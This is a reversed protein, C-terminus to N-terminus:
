GCLYTQVYTADGISSECILRPDIDPTTRAPAPGSHCMRPYTQLQDDCMILLVSLDPRLSRRRHQIRLYTQARHRSNYARSSRRQPVNTSSDPNSRRVHDAACIFRSTFEALCILAADGISAECILRPEIDPTTRAPAAGSHCMRPYTQIQDDCM